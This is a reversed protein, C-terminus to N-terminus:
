RAGLVIDYWSETDVGPLQIRYRLTLADSAAPIQFSGATYQAILADSEPVFKGVPSEYLTEGEKSLLCVILKADVIAKDEKTISVVPIIHEGSDSSRGRYGLSLLYGADVIGTQAWILPPLSEADSTSSANSETIFADSDVASGAQTEPVAPRLTGEDQCGLPAFLVIPVLLSIRLDSMSVVGVFLM